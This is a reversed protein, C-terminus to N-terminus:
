TVNNVRNNSFFVYKSSKCAVCPLNDQLSCKQLYIPTPQYTMFQIKLRVETPTQSLTVSSTGPLQKWMSRNFVFAVFQKVGVGHSVFFTCTFTDMLFGFLHCRGRIIPFVWTEAEGPQKCSFPLFLHAIM